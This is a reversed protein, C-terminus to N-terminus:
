LCTDYILGIIIPRKNVIRLLAIFGAWYRPRMHAYYILGVIISNKFPDM